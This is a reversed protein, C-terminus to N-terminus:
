EKESGTDVTYVTQAVYGEEVYRGVSRSGDEIANVRVGERRLRNLLSLVQDAPYGTREIIEALTGPLSDRVADVPRVFDAAVTCRGRAACM